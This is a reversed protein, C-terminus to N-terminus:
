WGPSHDSATCGGLRMGTGGGGGSAASAVSGGLRDAAYLYGSFMGTQVMWLLPVIWSVMLECQLKFLRPELTPQLHRLLRVPCGILDDM